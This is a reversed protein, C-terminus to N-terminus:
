LDSLDSDSLVPRSTVVLAFLSVSALLVITMSLEQISRALRQFIIFSWVRLRQHSASRVAERCVRQM